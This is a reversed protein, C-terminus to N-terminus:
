FPVDSEAAQKAAKVKAWRAKASAALAKRWAATMQRKPKEVASAPKAVAKGRKKAWRAQQAAAMRARTQPSLTRKGGAPQVAPQAPGAPGPVQGGLLQNLQAQLEQIKEQLDAAQRLQQPSLATINM